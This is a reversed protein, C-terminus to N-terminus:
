EKPNKVLFRSIALYDLEATLFTRIAEEPACVIPEQHMNFSTNILSPIGTIKYYEKLIKYYGPNDKEKILQPRATGDVHVVGPSVQKMWETCDLAITMFKAAKETGEINAYCIDAFEFLTVPAFPMFESRKLKKNLWDNVSKDTTQYLISRNGLARPGYEMRGDFRAVTKGKSLLEAVREEIFFERSYKLDSKRLLRAIYEESYEPGLYVDALEPKEHAAPFFSIGGDGMNPFVFIRKFLGTQHLRQNVKINAFLGGALFIDPRSDKLLCNKVLGIVVKECTEQLAYAIDEKKLDNLAKLFRKESYRRSVRVGNPEVRFLDKFVVSLPTDKGLAALAMVKGDEGEKFGLYASIHSYFQAISDKHSLRKSSVTKGASVNILMGSDGDGYADLSVALYDSSIIGTLSSIIHSYHHNSLHITRYKVGAKKLRRTLAFLGIRSEVQRLLPFCAIFNELWCATKSSFSFIDKCPDSKSYVGDMVRFLARGFQGAVYVEDIPRGNIFSKAYEISRRPFGQQRKRRTFREESVAALIKGDEILVLSADHSDSLGLILM